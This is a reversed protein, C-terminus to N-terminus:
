SRPPAPEAVDREAFAFGREAERNRSLRCRFETRLGKAVDPHPYRRTQRQNRWGQQPPSQRSRGQEHQEGNNGCGVADERRSWIVVLAPGSIRENCCAYTKIPLSPVRAPMMRVILTSSRRAGVATRRLSTFGRLAPCDGRRSAM